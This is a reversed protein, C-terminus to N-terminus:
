RMSSYRQTEAGTWSRQTFKGTGKDLVGTQGRLKALVPSSTQPRSTTSTSSLPRSNTSTQTAVTPRNTTQPQTRVPSSPTINRVPQTGSPRVPQSTPRTPQSPTRRPPQAASAQSRAIERGVDAAMAAYGVPGPVAGLASLAAGGYDGKALRQGTEVASMVNGVLPIAKMGLRGAGRLLPSAPIAEQLNNRASYSEELFRNFTKM